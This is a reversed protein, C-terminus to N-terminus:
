SEDPFVRAMFSLFRQGYDVPNMSSIGRSDYVISKFFREARKTLDFVTLIDIIGIYYVHAGDSSPFYSLNFSLESLSPPSTGTDAIGLLLSYDVLGHSSLFEVDRALQALLATRTQTDILIKEHNDNFDNDKLTFSGPM